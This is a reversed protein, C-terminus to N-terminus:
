MAQSLVLEVKSGKKISTSAAPTQSEVFGCGTFTVNYGAKELIGVAERVSLGVVNPVGKQTKASVIRSSSQTGLMTKINSAKTDNNAYITPRTNDSKEGTHYDPNNDLMGHSYMRMAINRVVVASSNNASRHKLSNPESIVVICTYKPKNYPYFGVFSYRHVGKKYTSDKVSWVQATGTKGAIDVYKNRANKATGGDGYVVKHLMSQMIHANESSCVRDRVYTVPLISDGRPTHIETVLRPRVFRGDNALANYFACTYLPPIFSSYGFVQRDLSMQWAKDEKLVSFYASEEGYLGVKFNDCFGLQKVRERFKNPNDRYHSAVLKTMGINSSYEIFRSVPLANPGHTDTIENGYPDKWAKEGYKNIYTYTQYVESTDRVFGDELAIVMSVAKVVSGPEYLSVAHNRGEVYEGTKEKYELNSIAKIDGTAVEMLVATGWNAESEELMKELETEVIDQMAINITTKLTYGNQAPQDTWNVINKTLPIKKYIGVHGYLLSDLAKELGSYGHIGKNGGLDSVRGISRSAMDGYPYDRVIVRDVTLGIHNQTIGKNKIRKFFPYKKIKEVQDYTLNKLLLFPRRRSKIPLQEQGKMKDELYIRWEKATRTDHYAALTDCLQLLDQRFEKFMFRSTRIDIRVEYKNSNTALKSGDDALIDGREPAITDIRSLVKNAKENWAAANIVTNKVECYVIGAAFLLIIFSVVSYRFIIHASRTNKKSNAM